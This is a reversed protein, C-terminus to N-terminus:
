GGGGGRGRTTRGVPVRSIRFRELTQVPYGTNPQFPPPPTVAPPGPKFKSVSQLRVSRSENGVGTFCKRVSQGPLFFPGQDHSAPRPAAAAQTPFLRCFEQSLTPKSSKIRGFTSCFNLVLCFQFGFGRFSLLHCFCKM